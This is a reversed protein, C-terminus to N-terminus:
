IRSWAWSRGCPGRHTNPGVRRSVLGANRLVVLAGRVSDMRDGTWRTLLTLSASTGDLPLARLVARPVPDDDRM